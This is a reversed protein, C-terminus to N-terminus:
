LIGITDGAAVKSGVSLLSSPKLHGYIAAVKEKDVEHEIAVVGGYGEARRSVRVIGPAIAHVTVDEAVDGYEVDIGTHYGTFREPSVPSNKPTIYIGFPKKTIRQKFQAVPEILSTNGKSTIQLSQLFNEYTEESLDPRKAIVYFISPNRDSVRIDTVIHRESRWSPQSPFDAVSTKKEIEYRIAPHNNITLSERSHITVTSLTLFDNSSFHRIFIQSKELNNTGSVAPDYFLISEIAPVSETQWTEPIEASFTFESAAGKIDQAAITKTTKTTKPETVKPIPSFSETRTVPPSNADPSSSQRGIIVTGVALLAILAIIIAIFRASM